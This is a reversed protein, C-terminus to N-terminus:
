NVGPGAEADAVAVIDMTRVSYLRTGLETMELLLLHLADSVPALEGAAIPSTEAIEAVTEKFASIEQYLRGSTNEVEVLDAESVAGAEVARAVTLRLNTAEVQFRDLSSGIHKLHDQAPYVNM